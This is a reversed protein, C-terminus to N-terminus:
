EEFKGEINEFKKITGEIQSDSYIEFGWKKLQKIIRRIINDPDNTTIFYGTGDVLEEFGM